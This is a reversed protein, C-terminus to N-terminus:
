LPEAFAPLFGPTLINSVKFTHVFKLLVFFYKKSTFNNIPLIKM